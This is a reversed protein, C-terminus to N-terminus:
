IACITDFQAFHRMYYLYEQSEGFRETNDFTVKKSNIFLQVHFSFKDHPFVNGLCKWVVKM